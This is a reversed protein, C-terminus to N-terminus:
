DKKRMAEHERALEDHLRTSSWHVNAPTLVAKLPIRIGQSRMGQLLADFQPRLLNAMVLMPDEFPACLAASPRGGPQPRADSLGLLAGLPLAFDAAAVERWQVNLAGCLGKLADATGFDLNYLQLTADLM